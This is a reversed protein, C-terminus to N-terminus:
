KKKPIACRGVSEPDIHSSLIDQYEKYHKYFHVAYSCLPLVKKKEKRAWESLTQLLKKAIGHGRLSPDVYTRTIIIEEESSVEYEVMFPKDELVGGFYQKAPDHQIIPNM